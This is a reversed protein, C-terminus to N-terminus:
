SLASPSRCSNNLRNCCIITSGSKREEIELYFGSVDQDWKPAAFDGCTDYKEIRHISKEWSIPYQHFRNTRSIRVKIIKSDNRPADLSVLAVRCDRASENVKRDTPEKWLGTWMWTSMELIFGFKLAM